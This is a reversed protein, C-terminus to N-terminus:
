TISIPHARFPLFLLSPCPHVALNLPLVDYCLTLELGHMKIRNWMKFIYTTNQRCKVLHIHTIVPRYLLLLLVLGVPDWPSHIVWFSNVLGKYCSTCTALMTRRPPGVIVLICWSCWLVTTSLVMVGIFLFISPEGHVVVNVLMFICNRLLGLHEDFVHNNRFFIYKM